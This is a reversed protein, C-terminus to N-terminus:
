IQQIITHSYSMGRRATCKDIQSMANPHSEAQLVQPFWHDIKLHVCTVHLVEGCCCHSRWTCCKSAPLNRLSERENHKWKNGFADINM